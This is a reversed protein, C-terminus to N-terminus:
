AAHPIIDDNFMKQQFTQYESISAGGFVGNMAGAGDAVGAGDTVALGDGDYM